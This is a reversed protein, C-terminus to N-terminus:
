MSRSGPRNVSGDEQVRGPNQSAYWTGVLPSFTCLSYEGLFISTLYKTLLIAFYIFFFAPLLFLFPPPTPTAPSSIDSYVASYQLLLQKGLETDGHDSPSQVMLIPLGSM